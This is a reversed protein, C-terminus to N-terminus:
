KYVEATASFKGHERGAIVLFYKGGKEDAQKSLERKADMPSTTEATTNVTGIKQLNMKKVEEKTVEKAAVASFSVAGMVMSAVVWKMVKM